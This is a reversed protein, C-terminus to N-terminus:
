KWANVKSFANWIALIPYILVVLADFLPTFILLDKEKLRALCGGFVATQVALRLGFGAWAVPSGADQALLAAWGAYFVIQSAYFMGLLLRHLIKYQKATSMHRRKQRLWAGFSTAPESYTFADPDTEVATNRRRATENVFLDDDGSVLHNHRAFGKNRFFLSRTYCLNRGTGMYPLGALACSLYQM